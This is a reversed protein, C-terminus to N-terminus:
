KSDDIPSSGTIMSDPNDKSIIWAHTGGHQWTSGNSVRLVAGNKKEALESGGDEPWKIAGALDQFEMPVATQFFDTITGM